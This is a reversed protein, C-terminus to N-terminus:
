CSYENWYGNVQCKYCNSQDQNLSFTLGQNVKATTYVIVTLNHNGCKINIPFKYIKSYNNGSGIFTGDLYANFSTAATITLNAKGICNAYFLSQYITPSSVKSSTLWNVGTGAANKRNKDYYTSYITSAGAPSVITTITTSQLIVVSSCSYIIGFFILIYTLKM